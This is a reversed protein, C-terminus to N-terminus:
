PKPMISYDMRGMNCDLWMLRRALTNLQSASTEGILSTMLFSNFICFSTNKGSYFSEYEQTERTKRENIISRATVKKDELNKLNLTTRNLGTCIQCSCDDSESTVYKWLQYNVRLKNAIDELEKILEDCRIIYNLFREIYIQRYQIIKTKNKKVDYYNMTEPRDDLLPANLLKYKKRLEKEFEVLEEYPIYSYQFIQCPHPTQIKLIYVTKNSLTSM